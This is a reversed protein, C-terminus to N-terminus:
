KRLEKPGQQKIYIFAFKIEEIVENRTFRRNLLKQKLNIQEFVFNNIKLYDYGHEASLKKVITIFCYM